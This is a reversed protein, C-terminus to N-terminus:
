YLMTQVATNAILPWERKEEVESQKKMKEDEKLFLEAGVDKVFVRWVVREHMCQIMDTQSWIM